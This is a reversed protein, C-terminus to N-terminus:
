YYKCTLWVSSNCLELFCGFYFYTSM